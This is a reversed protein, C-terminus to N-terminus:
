LMCSDRLCTLQAQAPLAGTPGHYDAATLKCRNQEFYHKTTLKWSGRAFNCADAGSSSAGPQQRGMAAEDGDVDSASESDESEGSRARKGTIAQM